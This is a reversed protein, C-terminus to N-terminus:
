QVTERRMVTSATLTKGGLYMPSPLWSVQDFGISVTVTVPDGFEADSLPDPAVTVTAGSVSGTALYGNVTNQVEAVDTGDLVAARAGERSANTIVQQIMVMRGYEIMGFILLFFVPAVIAFEVAAAARRKRRYSRCPKELKHSAAALIGGVPGSQRGISLLNAIATQYLRHIM